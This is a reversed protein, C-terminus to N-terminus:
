HSITLIVHGKKQGTEVYQHAQVAQELPFARDIVSKITGTELLARLFLLDEIKSSSTRTKFKISSLHGRIGQSLKPNALLLLGDKKLVKKFDSFPRNGVVDLIVDFREDRSALDEQTYDIVHDIGISHLMDLKETSDVGTVEAGFYKALQVAFTGITGGAGNILVKQGKLVNGNGMFDLAELGGVPVAAAEEFSINAPKLAILTEKSDVPLCTYEVNTGINVFGLAAFVQDGKKFSEVDKGVEEIKGALEMGLITIRKPKRLGIYLRMFFRYLLPLNMGRMECDGATVTTAHVKILVENDKPLPKEINRLQLGDPPGYKTWLIAKM